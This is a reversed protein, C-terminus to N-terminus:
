PTYYLADLMAARVNWIRRELGVSPQSVRWWRTERMPRIIRDWYNVLNTTTRPQGFYDCLGQGNAGNLGVFQDPRKMALLRTGSGIGGGARKGKVFSAMFLDVFNAYDSSTVQGVAPIAAMAASLESPNRIVTAAFLPHGGMSGFFAWDLDGERSLVKGRTGAVRKRNEESLDSFNLTSALIRNAAELVKLRSEVGHTADATVKKVFTTWDMEQINLAPMTSPKPLRIDVWEEANKILRKARNHNAEYGYLWDPDLVEGNRHHEAVLNFLNQLQPDGPPGFLVVSAEQNVTFASTTLNHSGIVTAWRSGLDFCYVKLHFLPGKPKRVKFGPTGLFHRLTDPSTIYQHTGIVLHQFKHRYQLAAATVMNDTAWAIAWSMSVCNQTLDVMLETVRKPDHLLEMQM